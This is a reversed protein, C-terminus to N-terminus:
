TGPKAPLEDPYTKFYEWEAMPLTECTGDCVKMQGDAYYCSQCPEPEPPYSQQREAPANGTSESLNRRIGAQDYSPQLLAPLPLVSLSM